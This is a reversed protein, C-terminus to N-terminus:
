INLATFYYKYVATDSLKSESVQYLKPFTVFTDCEYEGQIHTLHVATVLQKNFFQQYILGGGIVFLTKKNTHSIQKFYTVCDDISNFILDPQDTTTLNDQSMTTSIVVNMRGSLPRFQKPISDWTNKGMIVVHGLTLAKFHKMDEACVWPLKGDKGIGCQDDIAAIISFM